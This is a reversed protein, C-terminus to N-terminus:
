KKDIFTNVLQKLSDMETRMIRNEQKLDKIEKVLIGILGTYNVSQLDEADKEGKVLYPYVEKLEHAIFGIDESKTLTNNYKVPYLNDVTFTADLNM